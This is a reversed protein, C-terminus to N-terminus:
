YFLILLAWYTFRDSFWVARSSRHSMPCEVGLKIIPMETRQNRHSLSWEPTKSSSPITCIICALPKWFQNQKLTMPPVELFNMRSFEPWIQRLQTRLRPEPLRGQHNQNPSWHDPRVNKSLLLRFLHSQTDHFVHSQTDHFFKSKISNFSKDLPQNPVSSPCCCM